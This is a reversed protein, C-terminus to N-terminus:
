STLGPLHLVSYTEKDEIEVTTKYRNDYVWIGCPATYPRTKTPTGDMSYMKMTGVYASIRCYFHDILPDPKNQGVYTTQLYIHLENKTIFNEIPTNQQYNPHRSIDLFFHGTVVESIKLYWTRDGAYLDGIGETPYAVREKDENFSWPFIRLLFDSPGKALNMIEVPINILADENKITFGIPTKSEGLLLLNPINLKINPITEANLRSTDNEMMTHTDTATKYAARAYKVVFILTIILAAASAIQAIMTWTQIQDMCM